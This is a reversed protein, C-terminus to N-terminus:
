VERRQMPTTPLRGVFFLCLCLMVVLFVRVADLPVVYISISFTVVIVFLAWVKVKKKIYRKEQWDRIIPGFLPSNLLWYHFRKSSKAFCTAALLLFPTTPLVPLVIGILGLVVCTWGVFILAIRKIPDGMFETLHLGM